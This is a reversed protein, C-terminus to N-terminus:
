RHALITVRNFLTYDDSYDLGPMSQFNPPIMTWNWGAATLINAIRDLRPVVKELKHALANFRLDRPEITPTETEHTIRTDIVVAKRTVSLVRELLGQYDAVHYLIGACLSIDFPGSAQIMTWTDDILLDAHRFAYADEPLFRNYSWYLNAQDIHERRGDIGLVQRIRGTEAHRASFYGCNCAIDLLRANRLEVREHIREVLLPARRWCHNRFMEATWGTDANLGPVVEIGSFRAPVMWPHLAEIQEITIDDSM